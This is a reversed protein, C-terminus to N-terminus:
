LRTGLSSGLSFVLACMLFLLMCSIVVLVGQDDLFVLVLTLLINVFYVICSRVCTAPM